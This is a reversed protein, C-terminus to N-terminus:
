GIRRVIEAPIENLIAMVVGQSAEFGKELMGAGKTGRRSIARAILFAVARADSGEIGLKREVWHEIPGIPPFHPKTGLEVPEAYELPNGFVGMVREGSVSVRDTWAERLHIPGAGYPTRIVVEREIVMLAETIKAIRAERSAKPYKRGLNELASIDIKLKPEFM